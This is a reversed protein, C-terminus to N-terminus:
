NRDEGKGDAACPSVRISLRHESVTEGGMALRYALELREPLRSEVRETIVEMTLRGLPLEYFATHREGAAFIMESRVAGRRTITVREGALRLLTKVREGEEQPEDYALLWGDATQRLVGECRLETTEEETGACRQTGRVRLFVSENM